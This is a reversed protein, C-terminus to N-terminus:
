LHLKSCVASLRARAHVNPGRGKEDGHCTVRVPRLNFALKPFALCCIVNRNNNSMCKLDVELAQNGEQFSAETCQYVDHFYNLELLPAEGMGVNNDLYAMMMEEGHKGSEGVLDVRFQGSVLNVSDDTRTQGSIVRDQFGFNLLVHCVFTIVEGTFITSAATPVLANITEGARKSGISPDIVIASNM